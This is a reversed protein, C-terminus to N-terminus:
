LESAPEILGRCEGFGITAFDPKACYARMIVEDGDQLYTRTEGGALKTPEKGGKTMELLCGVNEKDPGSITGTGLLDGTKLNCGNSTHHTVMQGLTWYLDKVNAHSLWMPDMNQRRMGKTSVRAEVMINFAGTKQDENNNLNPLPSPDDSARKSVPARFPALAEMTVIWPSITSCFSKGLFPGLPQYEWKQIDRASWDNLICLGFVHDLASSLPIPNGLDNGRGIFAGLEVEYDLARAPVFDPPAADDPRVQGRPRRVPTGISSARGHYGIPLYKYNPLLPSDPRFLKGVNTAHHISAYFDTYDGISVPIQMTCASMPLLCAAAKEKEPNPKTPDVKLITILRKRLPSSAASGWSMLAGLNPAKCAAQIEGSLSDLLHAEQARYLDFVQDGIAVGVHPERGNSQHSFVGFPLNQIPFYTGTAQASEVWSRLLKNHTENVEFIM